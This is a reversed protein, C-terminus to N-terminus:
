ITDTVLQRTKEAMNLYDHAADMNMWVDESQTPNYMPVLHLDHFKVDLDRCSKLLQEVKIEDPLSKERHLLFGTLHHIVSRYASQCVGYPVVDEEPKFFENKAKSLYDEAQKLKIKVQPDM